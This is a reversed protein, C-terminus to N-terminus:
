VKSLWKSRVRIYVPVDPAKSATDAAELKRSPMEPRKAVARLNLPRQATESPTPFQNQLLWFDRIARVFAALEVSDNPKVLYANAGYRFVDDIDEQSNSSTFVIV